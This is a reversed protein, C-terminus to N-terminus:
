PQGQQPFSLCRVVKFTEPAKRQRKGRSAEAPPGAADEQVPGDADCKRKETDQQLLTVILLEDEGHGELRRTATM